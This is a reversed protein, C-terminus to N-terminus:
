IWQYKFFFFFSPGLVVGNGLSLAGCEGLVELYLMSNFYFHFLFDMFLSLVIFKWTMPADAAWGRPGEQVRAEACAFSACVEEPHGKDWIGLGLWLYVERHM